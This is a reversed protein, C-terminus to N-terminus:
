MMFIRGVWGWPLSTERWYVWPVMVRYTKCLLAGSAFGNTQRKVSRRTRSKRVFRALDSSQPWRVVQLGNEAQLCPRIYSTSPFSLCGLAPRSLQQVRWGEGLHGRTQAAAGGGDRCATLFYKFCLWRKLHCYHWRQFKECTDWKM